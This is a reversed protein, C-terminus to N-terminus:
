NETLSYFVHQKNDQNLKVSSYNLERIQEISEDLKEPIISVVNELETGLHIANGLNPMLEELKNIMGPFYVLNMADDCDIIKKRLCKLVGLSVISLYSEIFSSDNIEITLKMTGGKLELGCEM